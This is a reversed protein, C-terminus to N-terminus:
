PTDGENRSRSVGGRTAAAPVSHDPVVLKVLESEASAPTARERIDRVPIHNLVDQVRENVFGLPGRITCNAWQECDSGGPSHMCQTLASGGDVARVVDGVTISADSVALTYGGSPGPSSALWGMKALRQMVKALLEAPIAFREAIEKTRVTRSEGSTALYSLALLAYDSKKSLGLV